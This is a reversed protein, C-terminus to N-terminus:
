KISRRSFFRKLLNRFDKDIVLFALSTILISGLSVFITLVLFSLIQNDCLGKWQFCNILYISLMSYGILISTAVLLKWWKPKQNPFVRKVVLHYNFPISIVVRAIATGLLAGTIGIFPVLSVTIVINLVAQFIVFNRSEKYLGKANRAVIICSHIISTFLITGFLFCNLYSVVFDPGVWLEVFDNIMIIFVSSVITGSFLSFSFMEQFVNYTKEDNNAAKIGITASSGDFIKQFFNSSQTVVLNYNSFITVADLSGMTSIIFNDTSNFVLGSVYHFFLDKSMRRPTSDAEVSKDISDGYLKKMVLHFSLGSVVSIVVCGLLLLQPSCDLTLLLIIEFLYTVITCACSLLEAIFRKEKLIIMYKPVMTLFYPAITRVSILLFISVMYLYDIDEKILFLPFIFSLFVSVVLMIFVIRRMSKKFGNFLASVSSYDNDAIPKYMKFVYAASLGAEILVLYSLVQNGTQVLGNITSGYKDIFLRIEVMGFVVSAFTAVMVALANFIM